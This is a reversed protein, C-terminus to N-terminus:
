RRVAVALYSEGDLRRRRSVLALARALWRIRRWGAIPLFPDGVSEERSLDFGAEAFMKRCQWPSLPTLHGERRYDEDGFWQFRGFTVFLAQSVPNDINPTTLVLVGGPRLLAHAERLLARPNELHEALEIAVAADYGPELREAFPGNLDARVFRVREHLRFNEEVYDVATPVHGMDLLRKCFAGSGAGLDAVRSGAALRDALVDAVADHLSRRGHIRLGEYQEAGVPEGAADRYPQDIIIPRGPTRTM